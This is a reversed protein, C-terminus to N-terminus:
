GFVTGVRFHGKWRTITVGKVSRAQDQAAKPILYMGRHNGVYLSWVHEGVKVGASEMARFFKDRARHSSCRAVVFGEPQTSEYM